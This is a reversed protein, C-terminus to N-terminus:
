PREGIPFQGQSLPTWLCSVSVQSAKHLMDECETCFHAKPNLYCTALMTVLWNRM